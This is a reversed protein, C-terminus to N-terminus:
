SAQEKGLFFCAARIPSSVATVAPKYRSPWWKNGWPGKWPKENKWPNRPKWDGKRGWGKASPFASISSVLASGTLIVSLKM